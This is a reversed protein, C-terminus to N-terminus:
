FRVLLKLVVYFTMIKTLSAVERKMKEKKSAIFQKNVCDYITFSHASISKLQDAMTADPCASSPRLHTVKPGEFLQLTRENCNSSGRIGNGASLRMLKHLKPKSSQNSTSSTSTDNQENSSKVTNDKDSTRKLLIQEQFETLTPKRNTKSQAYAKPPKTSNTKIIM